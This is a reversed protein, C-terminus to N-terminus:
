VRYVVVADRLQNALTDLSAATQNNESAANSNTEAMSAITEVSVAIQRVASEQEQLANAIDAVHGAVSRSGEDIRRLANETDNVLSVSADAQQNAAQMSTVTNNIGGQIAGILSAIEDTASTTREALKRVEDAVVAFGRGQEGARAAEIAANLALLNTQDAIEKIVQVIGGIRQSSGALEEVQTGSVNILQAIRNMNAVTTRMITLASQNEIQAQDVAATATRASNATESISVSAEQVAAAVASAADSQALSSTGVQQSASAMRTAAATIQESSRRTDAIINRFKGVLHNFAEGARAVESTGIEPVHGTFDNSSIAQEATTVAERLPDAVGRGVWLSVVITLVVALGGLGLYAFLARRSEELRAQAARGINETILTETVYLADIKKTITKFWVTPDIDFAGEVGKTFLVKRMQAVEKAADSALALELSAREDAAAIGTFDALFAEQRSIKDHIVRLPEAEIKNAAYVATTLAREQGASEKARVFAIYAITRQSIGADRNYRVGASISDVLQAITGSFYATSESAPIAFADAQKRLGNLADLKGKTTGLANALLPLDSVEVNGVDKQFEVLRADTNVRAAKTEESLRLGKSQVFGATAGREIQLTHVLNGASTSLRMLRQTQEVGSWSQFAQWSQISTSLTLAILPVAALLTLRQMISSRNM